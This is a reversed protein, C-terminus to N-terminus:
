TVRALCWGVGLGILMGILVAILINVLPVFLLGIAATSSTPSVFVSHYTSASIILAAAAGFLGLLPRGKGLLTVALCVAYPITSFALLGLTFANPGEAAKFLSIYGHLAVGLLAITVAAHKLLAQHRM